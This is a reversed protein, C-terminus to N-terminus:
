LWAMASAFVNKSSRIASQPGDAIVLLYGYQCVGVRAGSAVPDLAMSTAARYSM